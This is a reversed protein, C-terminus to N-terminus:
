AAVLSEGRAGADMYAIGSSPSVAKPNVTNTGTYHEIPVSRSTSIRLSYAVTKRLRSIVLSMVAPLGSGTELIGAPHQQFDHAMVHTEVNM